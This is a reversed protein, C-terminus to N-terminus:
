HLRPAGLTAVTSAFSPYLVADGYASLHNDDFFIPRGDRTVTCTETPCLVPFPDWVHVAPLQTAIVQMAVVVPGRLSELYARTETLGGRCVPNSANFWDSCRFPSRRFLPTPAAFLIAMGKSALPRLMTVAQSTALVIRERLMPSQMLSDMNQTAVNGEDDELRFQRLSARFLIDGPHVAALAERSATQVFNECGGPEGEAMPALLDLYPCGALFYVNVEIGREASLEELMPLYEVGVFGGPLWRANVHYLMAPVVAMARLGDIDPRYKM